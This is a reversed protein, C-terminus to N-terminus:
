PRIVAWGKGRAVVDGLIEVLDDIRYAIIVAPAEDCEAANPLLRFAVWFYRLGDDRCRGRMTYLTWTEGPRLESRAASVLAEPMPAPLRGVEKQKARAFSITQDGLTVLASGALALGVVISIGVPIGTIPLRPMPERRLPWVYVVALGAISGAIVAATRM